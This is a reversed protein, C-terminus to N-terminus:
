AALVAAVIEAVLEKPLTKMDVLRPIARCELEWEIPNHARIFERAIRHHHETGKFVIAWAKDDDDLKITSDDPNDLCCIQWRGYDSGVCDFINWGEKIAAASCAPYWRYRMWAEAEQDNM